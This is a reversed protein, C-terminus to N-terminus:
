RARRRNGHEWTRRRPNPGHSTWKGDAPHQIAVAVAELEIAIVPAFDVLGTSFSVWTARLKAM